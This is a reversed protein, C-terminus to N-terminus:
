VLCGYKKYKDAHGTSPPNKIIYTALKHRLDVQTKSGCAKCDRKIDGDKSIM